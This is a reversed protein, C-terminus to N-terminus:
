MLVGMFQPGVSNAEGRLNVFVKLGSVRCLVFEVRVKDDNRRLLAAHQYPGAMNRMRDLLARSVFGLVPDGDGEVDHDAAADFEERRAQVQTSPPRHLTAFPRVM